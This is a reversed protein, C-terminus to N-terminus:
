LDQLKLTQAAQTQPEPSGGSAGSWTAWRPIKLGLDQAQPLGPVLIKFGPFAGQELRHPGATILGLSVLVLSGHWEPGAWRPSLAKSM